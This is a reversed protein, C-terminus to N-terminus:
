AITGWPTPNKIALYSRGHLPPADMNHKKPTLKPGDHPQWGVRPSAFSLSLPNTTLTNPDVPLSPIISLQGWKRKLPIRYQFPLLHSHHVLCRHANLVPLLIIGVWKVPDDNVNHQQPDQHWPCQLRHRQPQISRDIPYARLHHHYCQLKQQVELLLLHKRLKIAIVALVFNWTIRRRERLNKERKAWSKCTDKNKTM